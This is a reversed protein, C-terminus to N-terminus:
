HTSPPRPPGPPSAWRLGGYLVYAELPTSLLHHRALLSEDNDVHFAVAKWHTRTWVELLGPRGELFHSAIADAVHYALEELTCEGVPFVATHNHRSTRRSPIDDPAHGFSDPSLLTSQKLKLLTGNTLVNEYVEVFSEGNKQGRRWGGAATSPM